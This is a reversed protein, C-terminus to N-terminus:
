VLEPKQAWAAEGGRGKTSTASEWSATLSDGPGMLICRIGSRALGRTADVAVREGEWRQKTPQASFRHAPFSVVVIQKFLRGIRALAAAVDNTVTGTVLVLSEEAAGRAEIDILRAVLQGHEGKTMGLTALLDLCRHLHAEGRGSPFGQHHAASFRVGYGASNYLQLASAATEVAREFSSPDGKSHASARDDLLITAKTHWPTEEQRIMVKGRKATSPWHVKRLDDGQVYERLAFFDEGTTGSPQRIASTQVSRRDGPDRPLTLPETRPHVLVSQLAAAESKVRALGFPDTLALSLPGIEYRGRRHPRVTYSLDRRGEPEIGNLTFRSRGTLRPPLHDEILLLPASGAGRNQLTVVVTLEQEARAKEPTVAREVSLDHKGLRVVAVALVLLVMLAFGLQQLPRAGFALGALVLASGTGGVLWGRGTPM